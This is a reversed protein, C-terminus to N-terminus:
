IYYYKIKPSFFDRTCYPVSHLSDRREGSIHPESKGLSHPNPVTQFHPPALTSNRQLGGSGPVSGPHDCLHEVRGLLEETGSQTNRGDRPDQLASIWSIEGLLTNGPPCLAKGASHAAPGPPPLDGLQTRHGLCFPLSLQCEAGLLARLGKCPPESGTLPPSSSTPLLFATNTGTQSLLPPKCWKIDGRSQRQSSGKGGSSHLLLKTDTVQFLILKGAGQLPLNTISHSNSGHASNRFVRSHPTSSQLSIKQPHSKKRAM